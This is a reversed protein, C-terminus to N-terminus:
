LESTSKKVLTQNNVEGTSWHGSNGTDSTVGGPQIVCYMDDWIELMFHHLIGVNTLLTAAHGYCIQLRRSQRDSPITPNRDLREYTKKDVRAKDRVFDDTTGHLAQVCIYLQWLEKEGDRMEPSSTKM